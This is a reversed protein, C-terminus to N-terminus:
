EAVSSSMEVPSIPRSFSSNLLALCTPPLMWIVTSPGSCAQIALSNGAPYRPATHTM